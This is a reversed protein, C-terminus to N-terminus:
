DHEGLINKMKCAHKLDSLENYNLLYMFSFVIFKM